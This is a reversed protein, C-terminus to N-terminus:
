KEAQGGTDLKERVWSPEEKRSKVNGVRGGKGSKLKAHKYEHMVKEIKDQAAKSYTAM